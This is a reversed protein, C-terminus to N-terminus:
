EIDAILFNKPITDGEKVHIKKIKGPFPMTVKNRMKMAELILISEGADLEKNESTFIKLITGPIFSVIKKPDDPKYIKRNEFKKTYLTSYVTGEIQLPKCDLGISDCPSKIEPKQKRSKPSPKRVAM